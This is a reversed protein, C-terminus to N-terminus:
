QKGGPLEIIAQSYCGCFCKEGPQIFEGDIKCGERIDYKRGDAAVHSKRPETKVWGHSHRWIAKHLGLDLKAQRDLANEIKNTQDFALNIARRRTVGLVKEISEVMEGINRGEMLCRNFTDELEFQAKTGLNKILGTAEQTAAKLIVKKAETMQVRVVFDQVARSFEINNRTIIDKNCTNVFDRALKEDESAPFAANFDNRIKKLMKKVKELLDLIEATEATTADSFGTAPKEAREQAKRLKRYLDMVEAMRDRLFAYRKLLERQLKAKIAVSPRIPRLVINRAKAM